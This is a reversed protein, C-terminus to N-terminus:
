KAKLFEILEPYFLDTGIIYTDHEHGDQISLKAGPIARALNTFVAPNIIDHEAAVILTKNKVKAADGLEIDPQTLMMNVLPDPVDANYEVLQEYLEPLIDTPKLNVGALVLKGLESSHNMATILAAIAGDSFGVIIPKKLKLGTFFTYVDGAMVDYSYVNTKSSEGHNRSDLAYVTYDAALSKALMDFIHHDEGNGHLLLLPAGKGSKAYHINVGGGIDVDYETVGVANKNSACSASSLVVGVIIAGWIINWRNFIM